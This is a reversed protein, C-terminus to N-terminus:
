GSSHDPCSHGVWVVRDVVQHRGYYSCRDVAHVHYVCGCAPFKEVVRLCMSSTHSNSDTSPIHLITPVSFCSTFCSQYTLCQNIVSGHFGPRFPTSYAATSSEDVGIGNDRVLPRPIVTRPPGSHHADSYNADCRQPM